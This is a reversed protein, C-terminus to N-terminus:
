TPPGDKQRRRQLWAAVLLAGIALALVIWGIDDETLYASSAQTVRSTVWVPQGINRIDDLNNIINTLATPSSGVVGHNFSMQESAGPSPSAWFLRKADFPRKERV